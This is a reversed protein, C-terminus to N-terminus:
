CDTTIGKRPWGGGRCTLFAVGPVLILDLRNFGIPCDRNPQSDSTDTQLDTRPRSIACVEYTQNRWSAPLAVSKGGALAGDAAALPGCEEPLSAFLLV